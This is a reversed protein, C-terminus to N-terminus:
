ATCFSKTCPQVDPCSSELAIGGGLQAEVEAIELLLREFANALVAEKSEYGLVEFDLQITKPREFVANPLLQAVFEQRVPHAKAGVVGSSSFSFGAKRVADACGKPFPKSIQVEPRYSVAAVACHKAHKSLFVADPQLEVVALEHSAGDALTATARLGIAADEGGKLLTVGPPLELHRAFAMEGPPVMLRAQSESLFEQSKVCFTLQGIRHAAIPEYEADAVKDTFHVVDAALCLPRTLLTRRVLNAVGYNDCRLAQLGKRRLGEVLERVASVGRRLAELEGRLLVGEHQPHEKVVAAVSSPDHGLAHQTALGLWTEDQPWIRWRDESIREVFIKMREKEV